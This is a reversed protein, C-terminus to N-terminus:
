EKKWDTAGNVEHCHEKVNIDVYICFPMAVISTYNKCNEYQTGITRYHKIVAFVDEVFFSM